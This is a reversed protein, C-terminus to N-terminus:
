GIFNGQKLPYRKAAKVVYVNMHFPHFTLLFILRYVSTYSGLGEAKKPTLLENQQQCLLTEQSFLM